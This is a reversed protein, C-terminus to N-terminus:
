INPEKLHLMGAVLKRKWHKKTGSIVDDMQLHSVASRVFRLAIIQAVFEVLLLM